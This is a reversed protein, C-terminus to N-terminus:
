LMNKKTNDIPIKSTSRRFTLPIWGRAKYYLLEGTEFSIIEVAYVDVCSYYQNALKEAFTRWDVKVHENGESVTKITLEDM